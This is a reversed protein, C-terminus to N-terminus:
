RAMEATLIVSYRALSSEMSSALEWNTPIPLVQEQSKSTPVEKAQVVDRSLTILELLHLSFAPTPTQSCM